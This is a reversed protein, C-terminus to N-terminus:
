GSRSRSSAGSTASPSSRASCRAVQACCTWRIRASKPIRELVECLKAPLERQARLRAGFEDLERASPLDGRLLLWAVEEFSSQAALEVIDYGRYRLGHGEGVSSIATAGASVGRLGGGKQEMGRQISM